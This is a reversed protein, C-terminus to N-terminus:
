IYNYGSLHIMKQVKAKESPNPLNDRLLRMNDLDAQHVDAGNKLLLWFIYPFCDYADYALTHIMHQVPSLSSMFTCDGKGRLNPNAGYKLLLKIIRIGQFSNKRKSWNTHKLSAIILAKPTEGPRAGQELLFKVIVANNAEVALSLATNKESDIFGIFQLHHLIVTKIARINPKKQFLAEKLWAIFLIPETNLPEIEEEIHEEQEHHTHNLMDIYLQKSKQREIELSFEPFSLSLANLHQRTCIRNILLCFIFTVTFPLKM